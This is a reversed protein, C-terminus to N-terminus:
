KLTYSNRKGKNPSCNLKQISMEREYIEKNVLIEFRGTVAVEKLGFPIYLCNKSPVFKGCVLSSRYNSRGVYLHENISLPNVVVAGPPFPEGNVWKYKDGILYEFRKVFIERGNYPFTAWNILDFAKAPIYDGKHFVRSVYM